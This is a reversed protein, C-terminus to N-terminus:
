FNKQIMTQYGVPEIVNIHTLRDRHKSVNPNPHIPLEFSLEPTHKALDNIADFWQEMKAHNERRHMTVLVENGETPVLETLHDLVTNGVVVIDGQVQENRLHQANM